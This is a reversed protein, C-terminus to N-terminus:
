VDGADAEDAKRKRGHSILRLHPHKRQHCGACLTVGNEVDFRKDPHAKWSLIHHAALGDKEGCEICRYGDRQYVQSRWDAYEPMNRCGAANASRVNGASIIDIRFTVQLAEDFQLDGLKADIADAVSALLNKKVTSKQKAGRYPLAQFMKQVFRRVVREDNPIASM